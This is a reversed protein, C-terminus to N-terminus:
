QGPGSLMADPVLHYGIVWQRQAPELQQVADRVISYALRAGIVTSMHNILTRDLIQYARAAAAITEFPHPDALGRVDFRIGWANAQAVENLDLRLLVAMSSGVLEAYRAVTAAAIAAFVARLNAVETQPETASPSSSAAAM